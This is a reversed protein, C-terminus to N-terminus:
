GRCAKASWGASASPSRKRRLTETACSNCRADPKEKNDKQRSEEKGGVVREREGKM